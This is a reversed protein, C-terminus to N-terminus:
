SRADKAAKSAAAYTKAAAVQTTLWVVMAEAVAPTMIVGVEFEREAQAGHTSHSESKLDLSGNKDIRYSVTDPMTGHEAFLSM